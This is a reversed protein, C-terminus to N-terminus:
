KDHDMCTDGQLASRAQSKETDAELVWSVAQHRM